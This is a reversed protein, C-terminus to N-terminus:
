KKPPPDCFITRGAANVSALASQILEVTVVEGALECGMKQLKTEMDAKVSEFLRPHKHLRQASPLFFSAFWEKAEPTITAGGAHYEVVGFGWDLIEQATREM